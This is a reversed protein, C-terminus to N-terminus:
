QRWSVEELAVGRESLLKELRDLDGARPIGTIWLQGGDASVQLAPAGSPPDSFRAVGLPTLTTLVQNDSGRWPKDTPRAAQFPESMVADVLALIEAHRRRLVRLSYGSYVLVDLDALPDSTRVTSLFTALAGAQDFPEGGSITLGVAGRDVCDTLWNVVTDIPTTAPEIAWTDVSACGACKISCGQVWMAARVGPGLTSVPFQVRSLALAPAADCDM